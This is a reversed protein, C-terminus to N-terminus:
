DQATIFLPNSTKPFFNSAAELDDSGGLSAQHQYPVSWDKKFLFHVPVLTYSLPVFKGIIHSPKPEVM